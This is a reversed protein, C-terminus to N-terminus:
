TVERGQPPLNPDHGSFAAAYPDARWNGEVEFMLEFRGPLGADEASTECTLDFEIPPSMGDGEEEVHNYDSAM